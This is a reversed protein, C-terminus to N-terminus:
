KYVSWNPLIEFPKPALKKFEKDAYVVNGGVVTLVSRIEPIKNEDITLFDESLLIFDAFKGVSISGKVDEDKTFWASGQTMLELAKERSIKKEKPLFAKGSLNKGTVFFYATYWPNYSAIRMADTGFGIPINNDLIDNVNVVENNIAEKGYKEEFEEAQFLLRSQVTIGGNLNKIRKIENMTLTEAHEISWRNKIPNEKNIEEIVNLMRSITESYAAHLRFTWGKKIVSQLIPKLDKELNVLLPRDQEFNTMDFSEYSLIEGAGIIKFYPDDITVDVTNLWKDFQEAENAGIPPYLTGGVRLTMKKEKALDIIAQYNNPYAGAGGDTLSTVGFSNLTQMYKQTSSKREALDKPPPLSGIANLIVAWDSVAIVNGTPEGNTDKEIFGGKPDPSNRDIKLAKLAAKNYIIRDWLHTVMIPTTASLQDLQAPTVLSKEKFQYPSWGGIVTAWEVKPTKDVQKKLVALAEKQSFIGDWRVERNFTAGYSVLHIHVDNIGPVLRRKNANITKGQYEKLLNENGIAVFKGNQIVATNSNEPISSDLTSIKANTIILDAKQQANAIFSLLSLSLTSLLKLKM